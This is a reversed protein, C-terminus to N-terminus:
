LVEEFLYAVLGCLFAKLTVKGTQSSITGGFVMELLEVNGEAFCHEISYRMAREVSQWSKEHREGVAACLSVMSIDSFSHGAQRATLIAESAELIYGFAKHESKVGLATIFSYIKSRVAPNRESLPVDVTRRKKSTKTGEM